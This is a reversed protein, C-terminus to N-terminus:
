MNLICIAQGICVTFYQVTGDIYKKLWLGSVVLDCSTAKPNM